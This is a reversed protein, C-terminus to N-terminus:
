DTVGRSDAQLGVYSGPKRMSYARRWVGNRRPETTWDTAATAPCEFRVQSYEIRVLCEVEVAAETARRGAQGWAVTVSAAHILM